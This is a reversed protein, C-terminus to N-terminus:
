PFESILRLNLWRQPSGDRGDWLSGLAAAALLTKKKKCCRPSQGLSASLLLVDSGSWLFVAANTGRLLSCDDSVMIVNVESAEM